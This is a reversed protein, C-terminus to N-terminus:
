FLSFSAFASAPLDAPLSKCYDLFSIIAYSYNSLLHHSQCSEPYIKFSTLNNPYLVHSLLLISNGYSSPAQQLSASIPTTTLTSLETKSLLLICPFTLNTSSVPPLLPRHCYIIQVHYKFGQSQIICGCYYHLYDM